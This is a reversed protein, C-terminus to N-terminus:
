DRKQAKKREEEYTQYSVDNEQLCEEQETYNLDYCNNVRVSRFGEYMNSCGAVPCILSSMLVIYFVLVSHKKVSFFKMCTEM